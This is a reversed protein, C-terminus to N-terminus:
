RHRKTSQECERQQPVRLAEQVVTAVCIEENDGEGEVDDAECTRTGKIDGSFTSPVINIHGRRVAIVLPGLTTVEHTNKTAAPKPKRSAEQNPTAKSTNSTNVSHRMHVAATTYERLRTALCRVAVPCAM